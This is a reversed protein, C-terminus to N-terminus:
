AAGAKGPLLGLARNTLAFEGHILTAAADYAEAASEEEIFCGLHRQKVGDRVRAAWKGRNRYVGKFRSTGRRSRGYRTNETATCARLHEPNVCQPTRCIHDVLAKPPLPGVLAEYAFRHVLAKTRSGDSRSGVSMRGYGGSETGCWLWCGSMPEPIVKDWFRSPLRDDM